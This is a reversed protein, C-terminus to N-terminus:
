ILRNQAFSYPKRDGIIVHDILPIDLLKGAEVLRETVSLDESSPTPDGSPHNHAVIISAAGERIAERFTERIGVISADLTGVHINAVRLVNSKTDLLIAVFHEKKEFRLHNLLKFVHGPQTIETIEGKGAGGIRRGIEIFALARLVEFGELGTAETFDTTSADSLGLLGNYRLLFKRASDGALNADSERRSIGVAILDTLTASKTGLSRVRDVVSPEYEAVDFYSRM